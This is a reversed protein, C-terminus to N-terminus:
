TGKEARLFLPEKLQIFSFLLFHINFYAALYKVEGTLRM